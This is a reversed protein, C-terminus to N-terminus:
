HPGATKTSEDNKREGHVQGKVSLGLVEGDGAFEHLDGGSAGIGRVAPRELKIGYDGDAAALEAAHFDFGRVRFLEIGQLVFEDLGGARECDDVGAGRDLARDEFESGDM